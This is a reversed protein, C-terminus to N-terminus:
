CRQQQYLWECTCPLAAAAHKRDEAIKIGCFWGIGSLALRFMFHSSKRVLSLAAQGGVLALMPPQCPAVNSSRAAATCPPQAPSAPLATAASLCSPCRGAEGSCLASGPSSRSVQGDRKVHCCTEHDSVKGRTPGGKLVGLLAPFLAANCFPTHDQAPM